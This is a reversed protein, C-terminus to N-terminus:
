NKKKMRNALCGTRPLHVAFKTSQKDGLVQSHNPSPQNRGNSTNEFPQLSSDTIFISLLSFHSIKVTILTSPQSSLLCVYPLSIDLTPKEYHQQTDTQVDKRVVARHIFRRFPADSTDTLEIDKSAEREILQLENIHRSILTPINGGELVKM